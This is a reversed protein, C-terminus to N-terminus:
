QLYPHVFGFNFKLTELEEKQILEKVIEHLQM